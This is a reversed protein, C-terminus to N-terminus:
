TTWLSSAGSRRPRRNAKRAGRPIKKNKLWSERDELWFGLWRKKWDALKGARLWTQDETTKGHQHEAYDPCVGAMLAWTRVEAVSPIHAAAAPQQSKTEPEQTTTPPEQTTSARARPMDNANGDSRADSANANREKQWRKNAADANKDSKTNFEFVELETRNNWRQGNKEPYFEELISDVARKEAATVARCIRYIAVNGAPLPKESAYQWDMLVAYVGHELLSLHSTDKAYDGIHRKYYHM